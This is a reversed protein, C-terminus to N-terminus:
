TSQPVIRWNSEGFFVPLEAACVPGPMVSRLAKTQLEECLPAALGPLFVPSDPAEQEIKERSIAQLIRDVTLVRYVLSMDVTHGDTDVILYWFPSITTSLITSLVEITLSSNGSVLIPSERDPHNVPFFGPSAPDPHQLVEVAPLIESPRAAWLLSQFRTHTIRCQAPQIDGSRLKELFENRDSFGCARCDDMSLYPEISLNKEYLDARLM